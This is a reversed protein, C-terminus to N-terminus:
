PHYTSGSITRQQAADVTPASGKGSDGPSCFARASQWLMEASDFFRGPRALPVAVKVTMYLYGDLRSEIPRSVARRKAADVTLARCSPPRGFHRGSPLMPM